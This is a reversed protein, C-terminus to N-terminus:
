DAGFQWQCDYMNDPFRDVIIRWNALWNLCNQGMSTRVFISPLNVPEM